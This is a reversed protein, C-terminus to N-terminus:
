FFNKRFENIGDDVAQCFLPYNVDGSVADEFKKCLLGYLEIDPM